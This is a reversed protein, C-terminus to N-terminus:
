RKATLFRLAKTTRDLRAVHENGLLRTAEEQAAEWAPITKRLLNRGRSTIRILSTREDEGTRSDLWGQARLREIDRSLTSRDLHLAHCIDQQKAEKLCSAAVLINMQSITLGHPRLARNYIKNVARNLLRLRVAVCREAILQIAATVEDAKSVESMAIMTYVVILITLGHSM